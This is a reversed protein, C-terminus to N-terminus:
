IRKWDKVYANTVKSHRPTVRRGSKGEEGRRERLNSAIVRVKSM